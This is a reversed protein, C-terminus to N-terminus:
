AHGAVALAASGRRPTPIWLLGHARWNLGARAWRPLEGAPMAVVEPWPIGHERARQRIADLVGEIGRSWVAVYTRSDFLGFEELEGKTGCAVGVEGPKGVAIAAFTGPRDVASSLVLQLGPLVSSVAIRKPGVEVFGEALRALVADLPRYPRRSGDPKEGEAPTGEWLVLQKRSLMLDLDYPLEALAEFQKRTYM